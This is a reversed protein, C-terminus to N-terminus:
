ASMTARDLETRSCRVSGRAAASRLPAQEADAPASAANILGIETFAQPFNCCLEGTTSDIQEALVFCFIKAATWRL